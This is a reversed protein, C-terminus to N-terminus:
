SQAQLDVTFYQVALHGPCIDPDIGVRRVIIACKCWTQASIASSFHTFRPRLLPPLIVIRYISSLIRERM